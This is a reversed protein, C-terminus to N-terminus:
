FNFDVDYWENEYKTKQINYFNMLSPSVRELNLQQIKIQEITWSTVKKM